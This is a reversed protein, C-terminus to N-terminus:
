DMGAYIKLARRNSIMLTSGRSELLEQYRFDSLIPTVTERSVGIFQGIEGHTLSCIDPYWEGDEPRRCVV